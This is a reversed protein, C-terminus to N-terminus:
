FVEAAPRQSEDRSEACAPCIGRFMLDYGFFQFGRPDRILKEPDPVPDMDVDFVRGCFLCRVHGHKTAVHDFRDAGGPVKVVRIDGNEALQNLNRYITGRSINPHGASVEAYVEDATPHNQLRRVAELTLTRQITNRKM